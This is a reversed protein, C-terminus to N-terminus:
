QAILAVMACGVGIGMIFYLCRNKEERIQWAFAAVVVCVFALMLHAGIMQCKEKRGAKNRAPRV